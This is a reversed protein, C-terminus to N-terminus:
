EGRILKEILLYREYDNKTREEELKRSQLIANGVFVKFQADPMNAFDYDTTEEPKEDTTQIESLFPNKEVVPEVISEEVVPVVTESNKKNLASIFKQYARELCIEKVMEIDPSRTAWLYDKGVMKFINLRLLIKNDLISNRPKEPVFFDRADIIDIVNELNLAEIKFTNHSSVPVYKTHKYVEFLIIQTEDVTDEKAGTYYKEKYEEKSVLAIIQPETKIEEIVTEVVNKRKPRTAVWSNRVKIFINTLEETSLLEPGCWRVYKKKSIAFEDKNIELFKARIFINDSNENSVGCVRSLIVRDKDTEKVGCLRNLATRNQNNKELNFLDSLLVWEKSTQQKVFKVMEGIRNSTGKKNM